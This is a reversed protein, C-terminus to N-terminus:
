SATHGDERENARNCAKEMRCLGSKFQVRQIGAYLGRPFCRYMLKDLRLSLPQKGDGLYVFDSWPSRRMYWDWQEALLHGSNQYWPRLSCTPFLHVVTPAEVAENFAKRDYFTAVGMAKQFTRLDRYLLAQAYCNYRFPLTEISGRFVLSILDQDAVLYNSRVKSIHEMIRETCRQERWKKGDVLIAGTNYYPEGDMGLYKLHVRHALDYVMAMPKGKLDFDLLPRLSGLVLMDSDLYLLRDIEEEIQALAVIKYYPSYSNKYRPVKHEALFCDIEETALLVLRRGYREMLERMKGMNRESVAEPMYYVVIESIDKNNEFLSTLMVGLIPCYADSSEVFVNLRDKM